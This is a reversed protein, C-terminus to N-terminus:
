DFSLLYLLSQYSCRFSRCHIVEAYNLFETESYRKRQYALGEFEHTLGKFNSGQENFYPNILQRKM